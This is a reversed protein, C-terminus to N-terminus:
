GQLVWLNRLRQQCPLPINRSFALSTRQGRQVGGIWGESVGQEPCVQGVEQLFAATVKGTELRPVGDEIRIMFAYRPQIVWWVAGALLAVVALSGVTEM